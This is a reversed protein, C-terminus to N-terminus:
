SHSSNQRTSKRDPRHARVGDSCRQHFISGHLQERCLVVRPRMAPPRTGPRRHVIWAAALYEADDVDTARRHRNMRRRHCQHLRRDPQGLGCQPLLVRDSELLEATMGCRHEPRGCPRGDHHVPVAPDGVCAPQGNGVPQHGRTEARGARARTPPTCAPVARHRSAPAGRLCVSSWRLPVRDRHCGALLPALRCSNSGLARVGGRASGALAPRFPNRQFRHRTM